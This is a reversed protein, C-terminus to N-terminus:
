GERGELLFVFVEDGAELGGVGVDIGDGEGGEVRGLAFNEVGLVGEGGFFLAVVAEHFDPAGFGELEPM